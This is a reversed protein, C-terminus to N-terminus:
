DGKMGGIREFHPLFIHSCYIAAWFYTGKQPLYMIPFINQLAPSEMTM